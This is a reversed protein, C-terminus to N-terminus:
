RGPRAPARSGSVAFVPMDRPQATGLLQDGNVTISFHVVMPAPDAIDVDFSLLNGQASGRVIPLPPFGLIVSTGALATGDLAFDFSGRQSGQPAEIAIDWYGDPSM